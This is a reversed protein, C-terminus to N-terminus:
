SSQLCASHPLAYEARRIVQSEPCAGCLGVQFGSLITERFRCEGADSPVVSPIFHGCRSSVKDGKTGHSQECGGKGHGGQLRGVRLRRRGASRGGESGSGGDAGFDGGGGEDFGFLEDLDLHSGGVAGLGGAVPAHVHRREVFAADARAFDREFGVDRGGGQPIGREGADDGASRGGVGEDAAGVGVGRERGGVFVDGESGDGLKGAPDLGALEGGVRRM